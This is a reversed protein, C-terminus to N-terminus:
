RRSSRRGRGRAGPAGTRRAREAARIARLDQGFEVSFFARVAPAVRGPPLTPSTFDGVVAVRTAGGAPRYYLFFRSGAFPGELVDYALGLPHYSRWRMTFRTRRGRFGQVWSYVGSNGPLRRRRTAAHRHARSHAKGSGVFAWVRDVPAPFRGADDRVFVM